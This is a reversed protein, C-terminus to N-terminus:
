GQAFITAMTKQQGVFDVSSVDLGTNKRDRWGQSMNGM